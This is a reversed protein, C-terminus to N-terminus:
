KCLDWVLDKSVLLNNDEMLLHFHGAGKCPSCHDKMMEYGPCQTIYYLMEEQTPM